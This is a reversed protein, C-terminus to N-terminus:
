VTLNCTLLYVAKRSHCIKKKKKTHPCDLTSGNDRFKQYNLETVRNGM